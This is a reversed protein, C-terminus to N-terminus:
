ESAASIAAGAMAIKARLPHDPTASQPLRAELRARSTYVKGRLKSGISKVRRQLTAFSGDAPFDKISARAARAFAGQAQKQAPSMLAKNLVFSPPNALYHGRSSMGVRAWPNKKLLMPTGYVDLMVM